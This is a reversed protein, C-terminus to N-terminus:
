ETNSLDRPEIDSFWLPFAWPFAQSGIARGARIEDANSVVRIEDNDDAITRLAM